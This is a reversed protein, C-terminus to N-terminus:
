WIELARAACSITSSSVKKGRRQGDRAKGRGKGELTRTNDRHVGLLDPENGTSAIPDSNAILVDPKRYMILMLFLHSSYKPFIRATLPLLSIFSLFGRVGQM